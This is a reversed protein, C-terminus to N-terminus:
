EFVTVLLSFQPGVSKRNTDQAQFWRTLKSLVKPHVSSFCPLLPPIQGVMTANWWWVCACVSTRCGASPFSASAGGTLQLCAGLDGAGTWFFFLLLVGPKSQSALSSVETRITEIM